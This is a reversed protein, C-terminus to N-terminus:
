CLLLFITCYSSLWSMGLIIDFKKMDLIQFHVLTKYGMFMMVREIFRILM